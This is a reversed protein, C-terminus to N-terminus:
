KFFSFKPFSPLFYALCIIFLLNLPYAEFIITTAGFLAFIITFSYMDMRNSSFLYFLWISFVILFFVFGILGTNAIISAYISDLIKGSNENIMVGTNTGLGFSNTFFGSSTLIELFIQLRVGLSDEVYGESRGSIIPIILLLLIIFIPSVILIHKIYRKNNTIIILLLSFVIIGTGSMTLFISIGMLCSLFVKTKVKELGYYYQLFFFCAVSFFAATNPILFFGPTRAALGFINTGYWLQMNFLQYIQLFLHPIFLILLIEAVKKMFREDINGILLFPLLIPISWRIGALVMLSDGNSLLTLLINYALVFMIIIPLIILRNATMNWVIKTIALLLVLIFFVDKLLKLYVPTLAELQSTLGTTLLAYVEFASFIPTCLLAVLILLQICKRINDAM